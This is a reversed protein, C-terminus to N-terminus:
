LCINGGYFSVWYFNNTNQIIRWRSCAINGIMKKASFHQKMQRWPHCEEKVKAQKLYRYALLFLSYHIVTCLFWVLFYGHFNAWHGWVVGLHSHIPTKCYNSGILIGCGCVIDGFNHLDILVNCV